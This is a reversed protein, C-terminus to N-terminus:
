FFCFAYFDNITMQRRENGGFQAAHMRPFAGVLPCPQMRQGWAVSSDAGGWFKYIFFYIKITKLKITTLIIPM